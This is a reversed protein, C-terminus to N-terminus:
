TCLGLPASDIKALPGLFNKWRARVDASPDHVLVSFSPSRLRSRLPALIARVAVDSEPLGYGWVEVSDATLLAQNGIRWIEQMERGALQKLFSPYALLSDGPPGIVREELPDYLLIEAAKAPVALYKLFGHKSDFYLQNNRSRHWGVSGHLKLVTVESPALRGRTRQALKKAFGYGDRPNWRRDELLTREVTTDWNLTIVIDGRKLHSLLDRLYDRRSRNKPKSDEHHKFRFFWDLCERFRERAVILDQFRHATRAGRRARESGEKAGMEGRLVRSADAFNQMLEADWAAKFLDPVSLVVEPNPNRLLLRLLGRSRNVSSEWTNWANTFNWFFRSGTEAERRIESVLENALPYGACKSAGAGLMLVHM